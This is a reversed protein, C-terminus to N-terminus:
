APINAMSRSRITPQVEFGGFGGEKMFNMERELQEKVVAPGFWWWRVTPRAEDPPDVFGKELAEIANADAARASSAAATLATLIVLIFRSAPAKM